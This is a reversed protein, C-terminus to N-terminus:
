ASDGRGGWMRVAHLSLLSSIGAYALARAECSNQLSHAKCHFHSELSSRLLAREIRCWCIEHPLVRVGFSATQVCSSPNTPLPSGFRLKYLLPHSVPNQFHILSSLFAEPSTSIAWISSRKCQLRPQVVKPGTLQEEREFARRRSHVDEM